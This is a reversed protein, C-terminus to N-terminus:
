PAVLLCRAFVDSVAESGGLLVARHAGGGPLVGLDEGGRGTGLARLDLGDERLSRVDAELLRLRQALGGLEVLLEDGVVGGDLHVVVRETLTGHLQRDAGRGGGPSLVGQVLDEPRPPAQRLRDGGVQEEQHM